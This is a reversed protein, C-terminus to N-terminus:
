CHTAATDPVMRCSKALRQSTFSTSTTLTAHGHLIKRVLHLPLALQICAHCGNTIELFML